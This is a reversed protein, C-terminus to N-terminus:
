DSSDIYRVRACKTCRYKHVCGTPAGVEVFDHMCVSDLPEVWGHGNCQQCLFDNFRGKGECLPCLTTRNYEPDPQKTEM